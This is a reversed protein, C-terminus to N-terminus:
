RFIEVTMDEFDTKLNKHDLKLGFPNEINSKVSFVKEDIIHIVSHQKYYDVDYVTKGTVRDVGQLKFYEPHKPDDVQIVFIKDNHCFDTKSM